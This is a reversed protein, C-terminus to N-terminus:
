SPFCLPSVFCLLELTLMTKLAVHACRVIFSVLQALALHTPALHWTHQHWANHHWTGLEWHCAGPALQALEGSDGAGAIRSDASPQPTAGTSPHVSHDM